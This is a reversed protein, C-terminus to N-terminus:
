SAAETRSELARMALDFAHREHPALGGRANVLNTLRSRCEALTTGVFAEHVCGAIAMTAPCGRAQWALADIRDDVLTLELHLEDGCIAHEASGSLVGPGSLRGAGVAARAAARLADSM